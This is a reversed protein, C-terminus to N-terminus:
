RYIIPHYIFPKVIFYTFLNSLNQPAVRILSVIGFKQVQQFIELNWTSYDNVQINWPFISELFFQPLFKENRSQYHLHTSSLTWPLQINVIPILNFNLNIYNTIWLRLSAASIFIYNVQELPELELRVAELEALVQKEMTAYHERVHLTEYLQSIIM